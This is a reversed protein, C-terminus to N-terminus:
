GGPAAFLDAYQPDRILHAAIRETVACITLYPNVGLPTPIVSGDAVYLGPHVAPQGWADALGGDRGDFVQGLHNVVGCEPTDAMRCGGLPHVTVLNDGFAKLRKYRQGEIQGIQTFERFMMKRYDSDKLGPWKIQYRGDKWVFEGRGEDHGMGLMVMSHDLSKDRLLIAFLNAVGRPIAAEQIIFKNELGPRDFFNLTTQVTTGVPGSPKACTSFGGISTDDPTKVVFGITDGNASWKRGLAPSFVFSRSQSQLLIETSGLSGAGLIVIRSNIALPHRTIKGDSDDVYTLHLRYYGSLREIRDVQVQTFMDTGNWKAVPLYNYVLTNKAGVNCGTICNGCQTCPRQIMGHQNRLEADLYRYDYMVAVPSRDYNDPNNSLVEATLRRKRVKPVADFPTRSLSLQRAARNYFPTLTEIDSLASPWGCHFTEPHPRLAVNANILSTGGLASGTLINVEDNFSLNYLGLPNTVQGQGPGAMQQRTARTVNPFTDPFAGPLWERGREIIAIRHHPQLVQSIRAACISAGYGSGIVMVSYHLEDPRQSQLFLERIPNSLRGGFRALSVTYDQAAQTNQVSCCPQLRDLIPFRGDDAHTSNGGGGFTAAAVTAAATKLLTRREHDPRCRGDASTSSGPTKDNNPISDPM